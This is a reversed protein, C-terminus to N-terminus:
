VSYDCMSSILNYLFHLLISGWLCNTKKYVFACLFHLFLLYVIHSLSLSYLSIRGSIVWKVPYHMLIFLVATICSGVISNKILGYLRTLIFGRYIIEESIAGVLFIFFSILSITQISSLATGQVGKTAIQFLILFCAGAVGLLLSKGLNQASIGIAVLGQRRILLLLMCFAFGIIPFVIQGVLLIYVPVNLTFLYGHLFALSFDILILINAYIGDKTSYKALSDKYYENM